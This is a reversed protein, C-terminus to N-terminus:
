QLEGIARLVSPLYRRNEYAGQETLNRDIELKMRTLFKTQISNGDTLYLIGNKRLMKRCRRLLANKQKFSYKNQRYSLINSLYISDFYGEVPLTNIDGLTFSVRQVSHQLFPLRKEFYKSRSQVLETPLYFEPDLFHYFDGQALIQKHIEAYAIQAENNDFSVVEGFESLAIPVDGSGCVALFRQGDQPHMGAMIKDLSENTIHFRVDDFLPDDDIM